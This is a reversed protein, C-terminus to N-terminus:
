LGPGGALGLHQHHKVIGPAHVLDDIAALRVVIRVGGIYVLHRGVPNVPAFISAAWGIDVTGPCVLPERGADVATALGERWQALETEIGARRLAPLYGIALPHCLGNGHTVLPEKA